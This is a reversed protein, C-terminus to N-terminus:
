AATPCGLSEREKKKTSDDVTSAMFIGADHQVLLNCAFLVACWFLFVFNDSNAANATKIELGRGGGVWVLWECASRIHTANTRTATPSTPVMILFIFDASLKSRLSM